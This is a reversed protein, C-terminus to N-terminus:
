VLENLVVGVSERMRRRVDLLDDVPIKKLVEGSGSEVVQIQNLGPDAGDVEFRVSRGSISVLSNLREAMVAVEERNMPEQEEAAEAKAEEAKEPRVVARSEVTAEAERNMRVEGRLDRLDMGQNRQLPEASSGGATGLDMM